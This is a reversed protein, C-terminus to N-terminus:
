GGQFNASFVFVNNVDLLVDVVTAFIGTIRWNRVDSECHAKAETGSELGTKAQKRM